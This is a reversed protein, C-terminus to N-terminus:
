VKIGNARLYDRMADDQSKAVNSQGSPAMSRSSADKARSTTGEKERRSQYLEYAADPDGFGIPDGDADKPSISTLADLYLTRAKRAVPSNSSLDINHIDEAESIIDALRTDTERQAEDVARQQASVEDRIEKRIKEERQNFLREQLGWAQRAAPTDGYMTLWEQPVDTPATRSSFEEFAKQRAEREILDREKTELERERVRFTARRERRRIDAETEQESPAHETEPSKPADTLEAELPSPFSADDGEKPFGKTIDENM